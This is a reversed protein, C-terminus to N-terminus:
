QYEAYPRIFKQKFLEAKDKIEPQDLDIRSKIGCERYIARVANTEPNGEITFLYGQEILFSWFDPKKCWHGALKCLNGGRLEQHAPPKLQIREPAHVLGLLAGKEGLWTNIQDKTVNPALRM